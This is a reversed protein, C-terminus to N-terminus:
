WRRPFFGHNTLRQDPTPSLELTEKLVGFFLNAILAYGAETPHLGDEGILSGTDSPFGTELDVVTVGDNAALARIQGNLASVYPAGRGRIGSARQPPLTALYPRISRSRADREMFQLASVVNPITAAGAALLDNAGELILTAQYSGSSLLRSHRGVGADVREGSQGQNTVNIPQATYRGSL